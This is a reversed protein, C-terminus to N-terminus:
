RVMRSIPSEIWMNNASGGALEWQSVDWNFAVTQHGGLQDPPASTTSTLSDLVDTQNEENGSAELVNGTKHNYLVYSNGHAVPTWLQWYGM